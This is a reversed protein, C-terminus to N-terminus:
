NNAGFSTVDEGASEKGKTARGAGASRATTGGSVSTVVRM